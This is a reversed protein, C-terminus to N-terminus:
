LALNFTPEDYEGVGAGSVYRKGLWIAFRSEVWACCESRMPTQIDSLAYFRAGSTNNMFADVAGARSLGNGSRVARVGLSHTVSL